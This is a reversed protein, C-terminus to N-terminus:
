RVITIKHVKNNVKILYYGEPLDTIDLQIHNNSATFDEILVGLANFLKIQSGTETNILLTENAPNPFVIEKNINEKNILTPIYEEISWWNMSWEGALVLLRITQNGETLNLATKVTQWVQEGGTGPINVTDIPDGNQLFAIQGDGSGTVRYSITYMDTAPINISYELWDGATLSTIDLGGNTDSTTEWEIGRM